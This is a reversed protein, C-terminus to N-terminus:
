KRFAETFRDQNTKAQGKSAKGDYLVALEEPTVWFCNHEERALLEIYVCRGPGTMDKPTKGPGSSVKPLGVGRADIYKAFVNMVTTPNEGTDCVIPEYKKAGSERKRTVNDGEVNMKSITLKNNKISAFLVDKQDIFKKLLSENWAQYATRDEAEPSEPPEFTDKGLVIYETGPVYLRSAFPLTTPHTKLYARKEALTFEHDFIYGNLVEPSFRELADAPFAFSTRKTELIDAMVEPVEEKKEEEAEPLEVRGQGPPQTIRDVMTKNPVGLPALAYLDGKSELVSPRGFSDKFRFASAIAQQINFLVVERTFPRLAVILQERDWIPKSEFLKAIKVLLEDRVDLYTSLPRVHEPDPEPAVVQCAEVGPSTDFAPAMMSILTFEEIATSESRKQPVPLNKWDDPLTNIVNQIPCDMASEAIVKRVKAIKIAKQEVKTRYTYEDFCEKGDGTRVVHLYVTCNQEEFNPILQHSCTRLGRGIVQEIRSMNWWPDLIHLQRVYRFDVGESAVPGAIIVRIQSGDKNNPNKVKAVMDSFESETADSTLLIYKGKTSGKYAPNALLPERGAPLFGHEELAMAFLRAGMSVFNSYVLAVGVGSEISHIVTAFKAAYNPLSQPTLCPEGVYAFQKGSSRFIAGFEKNGPLVAITSEMLARKREEEEKKDTRTLVEKQLGGPISEVLSTQLYRFPEVGRGLFSKQIVSTDITKPPTLRFPFTFPNEGKVFSVYNQCWHRFMEGSQGAKLSGDSHFIDDVKVVENPAQKRDNWLFLNMYFIIEDFTDYMPTATLLVLVLGDATKVLNEMARTVGKIGGEDKSERINHAEDIILLRNDFNAHVWDRDIDKETGGLKSAILNGFSNYASFEYFENIIKDATRQLKDRVDPNNWNKPESEIRLLMDLYRRGTCQKSEMTGAIEDIKVRDIEFLEKRFNDQVAASAVVFVKKDQFEPRLIYEEAVQIATCTKGTGTGHVLLVNRTPADPSLIRRLFRQQTQLKFTSQQPTVCQETRLAKLADVSAPPLGATTIEAIEPYSLNAM